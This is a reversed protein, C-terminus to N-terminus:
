FEDVTSLYAKNTCFNYSTHLCSLDQVKYKVKLYSLDKENRIVLFINCVVTNCEYLIEYSLTALLCYFYMKKLLIKKSQCIYHCFVISDM